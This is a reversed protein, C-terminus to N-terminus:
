VGGGVKLLKGLKGIPAFDCYTRKTVTLEASEIANRMRSAATIRFSARCFLYLEASFM